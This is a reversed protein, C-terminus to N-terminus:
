SKSSKRSEWIGGRRYPCLSSPHNLKPSVFSPCANCVNQAPDVSLICGDNTVMNRCGQSAVHNTMGCLSCYKRPGANGFGGRQGQLRNDRGGRQSNNRGDQRSRQQNQQFNGTFNAFQGHRQTNDTEQQANQANVAFNAFQQPEQSKNPPNPRRGNGNFRGNQQHRKASNPQEIGQQRIEADISDKFTNLHATFESYTIAKNRKQCLQHYLNTATATSQPPLARLLAMSAEINLYAMRSDVSPMIDSARAALSLINSECKALTDTKPCKYNQLRMKAETASIRRDFNLMMLHYISEVSEGARLWDVILSHARGTTTSLLVDTFESRSLMMKNQARTMFDLYESVAVTPVDKNYTGSFKAHKYPFTLQADKKMALTTLRDTPSFTTPLTYDQGARHTEFEKNLINAEIKASTKELKENIKQETQLEVARLAESILGVNLQTQNTGTQKASLTNDALIKLFLQGVPHASVFDLDEKTSHATHLSAAGQPEIGWPVPNQALRPTYAVDQANRQYAAPTRMTYEQATMNRVPPPSFNRSNEISQPFRTVRQTDVRSERSWNESARNRWTAEVPSMARMDRQMDYTDRIDDEAYMDPATHVDAEIQILDDPNMRNKPRPSRNRPKTLNLMPPWKKPEKQEFLPASKPRAGLEM